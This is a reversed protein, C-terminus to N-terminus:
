ACRAERYERVVDRMRELNREDKWWWFVVRRQKRYLLWVRVSERMVILAMAHSPGKRYRAEYAAWRYERRARAAQEKTIM